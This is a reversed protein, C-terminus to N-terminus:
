PQCKGTWAHQDARERPAADLLARVAPVSRAIMEPIEKEWNSTGMEFLFSWIGFQWFAYDEFNGLTEYVVDASTGSKFGNISTAVNALREFESQFVTPTNKVNAWPYTVSNGSNHLTIASVINKKHLFKALAKTSELSFPAATSGCPGPYTRNPDTGHELRLISEYGSINLVPILFIQRNRIPNESLSQALAMAVETSGHENGHHTGVIVDAPGTLGIQIGVIKRQPFGQARLPTKLQFLRTDRPHSRHLSRLTEIIKDYAGTRLPNSLRNWESFGSYCNRDIFSMLPASGFSTRIENQQIDRILAFESSTPAKRYTYTRLSTQVYKTTTVRSPDIEGAKLFLVKTSPILSDYNIKKRWRKIDSKTELEFEVRGDFVQCTMKPLGDAKQAVLVLNPTAGLAHTTSFSLAVVTFLWQLRM